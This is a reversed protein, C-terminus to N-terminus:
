GSAHALSAACLLPIWLHLSWGFAYQRRMGCAMCASLWDQGGALKRFRAEKDDAIVANDAESIGPFLFAVAEPNHGGSLKDTFWAKEIPTGGNYGKELLLERWRCRGPTRVIRREQRQVLQSPASTVAASGRRRWAATM